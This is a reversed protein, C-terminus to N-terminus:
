VKLLSLKLKKKSPQCVISIGNRNGLVMCMAPLDLKQPEPYVIDGFGVDIRM